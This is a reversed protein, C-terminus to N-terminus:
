SEFTLPWHYCVVQLDTGQLQQDSCILSTLGARLSILHHQFSQLCSFYFLALQVQRIARCLSLFKDKLDIISCNGRIGQWLQQIGTEVQLGQVLEIIGLWNLQGLPCGVCLKPRLIQGAALLM